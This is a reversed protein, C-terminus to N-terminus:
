NPVSGLINRFIRLFLVFRLCSLWDGNQTKLRAGGSYWASTIDMRGNSVTM